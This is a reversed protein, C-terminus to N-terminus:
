KNDHNEGLLPKDNMQSYIFNENIIGIPNFDQKFHPSCSKILLHQGAISFSICQSLEGIALNMNSLAERFIRGSETGPIVGEGVENSVVLITCNLNLLQKIFHQHENELHM